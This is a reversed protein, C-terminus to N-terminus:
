TVKGDVFKDVIDDLVDDGLEFFDFLVFVPGILGKVNEHLDADLSAVDCSLTSTIEDETCSGGVSLRRSGVSSLTRGSLGAHRLNVEVLASGSVDLRLYLRTLFLLLETIQVIRTNFFLEGSKGHQDEFMSRLMYFSGNRRVTWYDYSPRNLLGPHDAQIKVEAVVGGATPHPKYEPPDLVLGIPWGYTPVTSERVAELLQKQEWNGEPNLTCSAEWFGNLKMEALGAVATSRNDVIWEPDAAPVMAGRIDDKRAAPRVIALRRRVRSELEERFGDLDDPNWFLIDYGELDFHVKPGGSVYNPSSHHHDERVTLILNQKKGLGMTYGVELYCNPRENTLDAIIVDSREIFAVVESKLLDGTNHRDVRRPVLGVSELAPFVVQDCVLDLEDNGIQMIVFGESM